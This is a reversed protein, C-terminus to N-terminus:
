NSGATTSAKRAASSRPSSSSSESGDTARAAYASGDADAAAADLPNVYGDLEGRAARKSPLARVVQM